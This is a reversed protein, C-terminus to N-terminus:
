LLADKNLGLKVIKENLTRRGIGLSEAVDDMKGNQATIAKGIMQREFAAIAERLTQPLDVIANEPNLAEVMSGGGMRMSLIRREAVNRLERVNGPWDYAILTALDDETLSPAEVEYLKAAEEVFHAALLAIDDRRERLSPLRLIVTNLRYLLDQRLRGDSVALDIDENTASLVRIDISIPTKTEFDFVEKTEIIRLLTAQIASPCAAIEDLFLTGGNASNVIDQVLDATLQAANVAVFPGGAATGLDHLARAVLEKGSGTEGYILVPAPSDALDAIEDRIRQMQSSQGLLVRDLGSLQLLRSRLRENTAKLRSQEAAHALISLLKRPEYPKEVFSYAGAQMAKVAMPIDGHASILVVPPADSAIMESLLDLGSMGPMRVDSLIVDPKFKGVWRAAEQARSLAKVTSGSAELLDVLSSRMERDDDIVLIRWDTM